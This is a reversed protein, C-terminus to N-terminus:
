LFGLPRDASAIRRERQDGGGRRPRRRSLFPDFARTSTNVRQSVRQCSNYKYSGHRTYQESNSRRRPLRWTRWGGVGRVCLRVCGRSLRPPVSYVRPSKLAWTVSPKGGIRQLHTTSGGGQANFIMYPIFKSSRTPESRSLSAKVVARAKPAWTGDARSQHMRARPCTLASTNRATPRTTWGTRQSTTRSARCSPLAALAPMRPACRLTCVAPHYSPVGPRPRTEESPTRTRRRQRACTCRHGMRRFSLAVEAPSDVEPMSAVAATKPRRRPRCRHLCRHFLSPATTLVQHLPVPRAGHHADKSSTVKRVATPEGAVAGVQRHAPSAREKAAAEVAALTAMVSPDTSEQDEMAADLELQPTPNFLGARTSFRDRDFTVTRAGDKLPWTLAFEDPDPNRLRLLVAAYLTAYEIDTKVM